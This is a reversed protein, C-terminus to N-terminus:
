RLSYGSLRFRHPRGSLGAFDGNVACLLNFNEAVHSYPQKGCQQYIRPTVDLAEAVQAQTFDMEVRLKKIKPGLNDYDSKNM